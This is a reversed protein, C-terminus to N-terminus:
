RWQWQAQWLGERRGKLSTYVSLFQTIHYPAHMYNLALSLIVTCFIWYGGHEGVGPFTCNQM